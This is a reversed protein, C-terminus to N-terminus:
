ALHSWGLYCGQKNIYTPYAKVLGPLMGAQEYIYSIGQGVWTADRSTLIHLIHRERKLGHLVECKVLDTWIIEM